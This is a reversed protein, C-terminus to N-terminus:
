LNGPLEVSDIADEETHDSDVFAFNISEPFEDDAESISIEVYEFGDKSGSNILDAIEQVRYYAM